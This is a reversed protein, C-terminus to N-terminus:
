RPPPNGHRKDARQHWYGLMWGTHRDTAFGSYVFYCCMCSNRILYESLVTPLRHVQHHDSLMQVALTSRRSSQTARGVSLKNTKSVHTINKLKKSVSRGLSGFTKMVAGHIQRPVGVSGQKREAEPQGGIVFNIQASDLSSRRQHMLRNFAQMQKANETAPMFKVDTYQKILNAKKDLQLDFDDCENARQWDYNSGPDTAFHLPLLELQPGVLPVAVTFLHECVCVCECTNMCTFVCGCTCM